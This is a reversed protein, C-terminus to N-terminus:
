PWTWYTDCEMLDNLLPQNCESIHGCIDSYVIAIRASRVVVRREDADIRRPLPGVASRTSWSYAQDTVVGVSMTEENEVEDVHRKATTCPGCVPQKTGIPWGMAFNVDDLTDVVDGVVAYRHM